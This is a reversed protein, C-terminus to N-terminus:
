FKGRNVLENAPPVPEVNDWHEVIRGSDLRFLDVQAFRQGDKGSTECLPQWSTEAVSWCCSASTVMARTASHVTAEALPDIGDATVANHQTYGETAFYRDVRSPDGGRMLLDQIMSAVLQKNGETQDLDCVESPGDIATHGPPNSDTYPAIVDWHEIIKGSEDTDFFDTTVWQSAGGNLAQFVHVFM